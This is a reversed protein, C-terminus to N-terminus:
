RAVHYRIWVAGDDCARVDSLKLPAPERDQPLGDFSATMGARGDIGPGMLISVEDLLGADLFAANITGGGVVVMRTVGFEESLIRSAEILDVRGDGCAIWSIDHADLYDLYGSPVSQSVLVVLPKGSVQPSDWRLTGRSDTVVTYGEADIKKSFDVHGLPEGSIHEMEGSCMELLATTRGSVTTPADLAALTDYYAAGGPLKVTMACDIRGDVSQAMHCITYPKNM